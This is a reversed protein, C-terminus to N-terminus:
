RAAQREDRQQEVGRGLRLATWWLATFIMGLVLLIPIIGGDTATFAGLVGAILVAGQLLWGAPVFFRRRAFGPLLLAVLALITLLWVYWSPQGAAVVAVPIALGLTIAETILVASTLARM